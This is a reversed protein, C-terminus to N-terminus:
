SDWASFGSPPAFSFMDARFRGTLITNALYLACAPYLSVPTITFREGTGAAPNGSFTGEKGVWIKGADLDVAFQMVQGTIVAGLATGVPSGNHYPQGNASFLAWAQTSSDLVDTAVNFSATAFGAEVGNSLPNTVQVEYYYKGTSRILTAKACKWSMSSPTDRTAVLNLSSLLVLVNKNVPDWTVTPAGGGGFAYSNIIMSM